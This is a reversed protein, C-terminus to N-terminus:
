VDSLPMSLSVIRTLPVLGLALHLRHIPYARMVTSNVILLTLLLVYAVIGWLPDLFVNLLEAAAIAALYALPNLLTKMGGGECGAYRPPHSVARCQWEQVSPVISEPGLGSQHSCSLGGGGM